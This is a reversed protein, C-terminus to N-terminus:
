KTRHVDKSCLCRYITESGIVFTSITLRKPNFRRGFARFTFTINEGNEYFTQKKCKKCHLYIKSHTESLLTQSPINKIIIQLGM